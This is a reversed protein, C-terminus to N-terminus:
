AITSVASKTLRPPLRAEHEPQERVGPHKQTTSSPSGADNSQSCPSCSQSSGVPIQQMWSVSIPQHPGGHQQQNQPVPNNVKQQMLWDQAYSTASLETRFSEAHHDPVRALSMSDINYCTTRM